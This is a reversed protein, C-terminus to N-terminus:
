SKRVIDFRALCWGFTILILPVGETFFVTPKYIEKFRRGVTKSVIFEDFLNPIGLGQDNFGTVILDRNGGINGANSILTQLMDEPSKFLRRYSEPIEMDFVLRYLYGLVIADQVLNDFVETDIKNALEHNESIMESDLPVNWIEKIKGYKIFEYTDDLLAKDLVSGQTYRSNYLRVLKQLKKKQEENLREYLKDENIGKLLDLHQLLSGCHSCFFVPKTNEYM